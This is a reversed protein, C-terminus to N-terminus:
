GWVIPRSTVLCWVVCTSCWLKLARRTDDRIAEKCEGNHWAKERKGCRTCKLKNIEIM